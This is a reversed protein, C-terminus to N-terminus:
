EIGLASALSRLFDSAYQNGVKAFSFMKEFGNCRNVEDGFGEDLLGIMQGLALYYDAIDSYERTKKLAKIYRRVDARISEAYEKKYKYLEEYADGEYRLLYKSLGKKGDSINRELADALKDTDANSTGAFKLFILCLMNVVAEPVSSKELAESYADLAFVYKGDLFDGSNEIELMIEKTLSYGRAFCPNELAKESSVFPFSSETILSLNENTFFSNPIEIGSFDVSLFVDVPIGYHFAIKQIDINDVQREGSEFMSIASKSRGLVNGLEEQTEGFANRLNRISKGIEANTKPM